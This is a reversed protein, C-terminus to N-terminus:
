LCSNYDYAQKVYCRATMWNNGHGEYSAQTILNPNIQWDTNDCNLNCLKSSYIVVNNYGSHTMYDHSYAYAVCDHDTQCINRAKEHSMQSYVARAVLDKNKSDKCLGSGKLEEFKFGGKILYYLCQM